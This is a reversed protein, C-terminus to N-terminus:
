RQREDTSRPKYASAEMSGRLVDAAGFLHRELKALTLRAM